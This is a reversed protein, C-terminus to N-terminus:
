FNLTSYYCKLYRLPFAVWRNSPGGSQNTQTAYFELYYASAAISNDYRHSSSLSAWGYGNVGTYWIRGYAIGVYGSRM